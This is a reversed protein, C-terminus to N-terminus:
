QANIVGCAAKAGAGQADSLEHVMYSFQTVDNPGGDAVTWVGTSETHTYTATGGSCMMDEFVEGNPVWHGGAAEGDAGCDHNAHIHSIHPGDPCGTVEVVLTVEDGIQTWTATAEFDEWGGPAATTSTVVAVAVGDPMVEDGGAGGMGGAGVEAGGAGMEGAGGSGAMEGGMGEDGPMGGADGAPAGGGGEPDSPANGGSGDMTAGGAGSVDGPSGGASEGNDVPNGPVAPDPDPEAGVDPMGPEPMPSSPMAGTAPGPTSPPTTMAGGSPSSAGPATSGTNVNSDGNDTSSEEGGCAPLTLVGILFCATRLTKM